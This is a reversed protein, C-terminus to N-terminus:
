QHHVCPHDLAASARVIGVSPHTLETRGVLPLVPATQDPNSVPGVIRRDLARLLLAEDKELMSSVLKLATSGPPHIRACSLLSVTRFPPHPHARAIPDFTPRTQRPPPKPSLPAEQTKQDSKRAQKEDALVLWRWGEARGGGKGEKERGEIRKRM